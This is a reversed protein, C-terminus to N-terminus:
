GSKPSRRATTKGSSKRARSNGAGNSDTAGNGAGNGAGKGGGADEGVEGSGESGSGSTGTQQLGSAPPTQGGGGAGPMAWGRGQDLTVRLDPANGERPKGIYLTRHPFPIEIGLADFRDKLLANYARRIGWQMGPRTQLRARIVMGNEEFRDLGFMELTGMINAGHAPDQMLRDAVEEMVAMVGAVDERYAVTVDLLAFSYDKTYNTVSTVMSFPLTHVNGSLDRLRLARINMSEVVGSKGGIEAVDGVAVTDEILIFLGTIVDKVLTQAGFGVALGIVGAGALLPTIDVGLESLGVLLVITVIVVFLANRVLPAITKLRQLQEPPVGRKESAALSRRLLGGVLRLAITAGAVMVVLTLLTTGLQRGIEDGMWSLGGLGWAELLGLGALVIILGNVIERVPAWSPPTIIGKQEVKEIEDADEDDALQEEPERVLRRTAIMLGVAVLVVLVSWGSSVAIYTFGQEVGLVWVVYVLAVYVLAGYHWVAAARRRLSALVGRDEARVPAIRAAVDKRYQLILRAVLGAAVLGILALLFAEVSTPLRWYAASRMIFYILAGFLVIQKIQRYLSVAVHDSLPIFRFARTNPRLLARFVLTILAYGTVAYIVAYTVGRVFWRPELLSLVLLTALVFVILALIRLLIDGAAALVRETLTAHPRAALHRRLRRIPLLTAWGAVLGLGIALALGGVIEAWFARSSPDQVQRQVWTFLAPLAAFTDVLEGARTMLQNTETTLFRTIQAAVSQVLPADKPRATEEPKAAATEGTGSGAAAAVPGASTGNVPSGGAAVGANGSLVRDLGDLLRTRATDDALAARLARLAQEATAESAPVQADAAPEAPATATQAQAPACAGGNLAFLLWLGILGRIMASGVSRRPVSEVATRQAAGAAVFLFRLV